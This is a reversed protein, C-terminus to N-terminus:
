RRPGWTALSRVQGELQEESRAAPRMARRPASPPDSEAPDVGTARMLAAFRAGQNPNDRPIRAATRHLTRDQPAERDYSRQRPAPDEDDRPDRRDDIDTATEIEGLTTLLQVSQPTTGLLLRQGDVEVVVLESRMGLNMRRLVRMPQAETRAAPKKRRLKVFAFAAAIILGGGLLKIMGDYPSVKPMEALALPKANRLVLPEGAPADVKAAATNSPAIAVANPGAPAPQALAPQPPPTPPTAVPTSPMEAATTPAPTTETDRSRRAAAADGALLAMGLTLGIVTGRKM